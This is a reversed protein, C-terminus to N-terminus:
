FTMLISLDFVVATKLEVLWDLWCKIHILSLVHRGTNDPGGVTSWRGRRQMTEYRTNM